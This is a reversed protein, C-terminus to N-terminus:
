GRDVGAPPVLFPAPGAVDVAVGAPVGLAPVAVDLLRWGYVTLYPVEAILGRTQVYRDLAEVGSFAFLWEIGGFEGALPEGDQMPVLVASRRFDMLVRASDIREAHLEVLRQALGM